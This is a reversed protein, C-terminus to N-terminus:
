AARASAREQAPARDAAAAPVAIRGEADCGELIMSFPAGNRQRALEVSWRSRGVGPVGLPASPASGVRWRTTAASNETLPCVDRRRWKRFLFAPTGGAASALQLRRSATMDARKVEGVVAGLGGHRLADEMAALVGVDDRAEHFIVRDPTLGVQELGPAYLDFRVVAWLVTGGARSAIGALFLTAAAEDALGPSSGCVEHLADAAIGGCALRADVEEAGFAITSAPRAPAGISSIRARMEEVVSIPSPVSM